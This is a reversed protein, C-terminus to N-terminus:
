PGTRDNRIERCTRADLQTSRGAARAHAAARAGVELESLFADDRRAITPRARRAAADRSRGDVRRPADRRSAPRRAGRCRSVRRSRPTAACRLAFQYSAGVAVGVFLGAAAAAAVWRPATRSTPRTSPAGSSAARSLQHRAGAPRRARDPARDAAAARAPARAHLDRRGRRRRRPAARGHVGALEAYRRRVGRLRGSARRGASRGARRRARGPLLRVAARGPPSARSAIVAQGGLLGRLKRAARFLHVRVTSENLGTMPASKGRRATATTACCSSPGSAATSGISPRRWGPAASARWSGTSRSGTAPAAASSAPRTRARRGRRRRVLSRAPARAKRRDLCGNILIRTFWVEFPWAERYSTIHSFM